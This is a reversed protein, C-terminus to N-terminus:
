IKAFQGAKACTFRKVQWNPHGMTWKAIEAQGYHMCQFPTVNDAAFSLHVDKCRKPELVFCVSVVVEIM